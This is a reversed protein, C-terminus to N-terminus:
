PVDVVEGGDITGLARYVGLPIRDTLFHVSGDAYAFNLGGTHNSRFGYTSTWDTPDAFRFNPPVATTGGTAPTGAWDAGWRTGAVFTSEGFLFTNSTGDIIYSVTRKCRYGSGPFMGDGNVWPDWGGSYEPLCGNGVPRNAYVGWGWNSGMVGKYSTLGTLLDDVYITGYVLPGLTSAKDSPCLYTKIVKDAVGSRFLTSIPINGQNYINDQEMYPLIVALVSWTRSDKGTNFYPARPNVSGIFGYEDSGQAGREYTYRQFPFHGNTGMYAHSALAIQKLNNTCSMRAVAERVKQVAPVLLGILVAIIAIVVLLEILTFGRRMARAKAM